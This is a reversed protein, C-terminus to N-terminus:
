GANSPGDKAADGPGVLPQYEHLPGVSGIPRAPTTQKSIRIFSFSTRTSEFSRSFNPVTFGAEFPHTRIAQGVQVALSLFFNLRYTCRSRSNLLHKM